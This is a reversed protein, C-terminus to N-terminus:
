RWTVDFKAKREAAFEQFKEGSFRVTAHGHDFREGRRVFVGADTEHRGAAHIGRIQFRVQLEVSDRGDAAGPDGFLFVQSFAFPVVNAVAAFSSQLDHRFGPSFIVT